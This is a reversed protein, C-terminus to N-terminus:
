RSMVSIQAQLQQIQQQIQLILQERTSAATTTTTTASSSIQNLASETQPGVTGTQKIGRASQFKIVATRTAPGYHSNPTASLFGQALLVKQLQLVDSGDDGYGLYRSFVYSIQNTTTTTQPNQNVAGNVSVYLVACQGGNQCVTINSAGSNLASIVASGGSIVASVANSNSNSGVYYNGTGSINVVTGQGSTLSINNQNFTPQSTVSSGTGNVTVALTACGGGGSSCVDLSSFGSAVGYVSIVNGSLTAQFVSGNGTASIYYPTYGGSVTVSLTQGSLLSISSQSMTMTGGSSSYNVTATLTGCSGTSSCVTITSSGNSNGVLTLTNSSINAQVISPNTNSSVYFVSGSTGYITVITSQGASVTPNTQSFTITSSGTTAATVNLIGCSSLDASCVTISASGSNSTTTLNVTSGSVYAQIISPNSNNSISYSGTGGSITVPVNQQGSAIPVNNQSFSLQSAGASQVTIYISSCNSNNNLVCVTAVTSGQTNAVINITNASISINAITPNSNNSLYLSNSGTNTATVNAAQGVPLVIGAQSLSITSSSATSVVPWFVQNSQSGNAGNTTVYVSTGSAIGYSSSSVSTSFNGASSINGLFNGSLGVGTKVYFFIVSAGSDGTVNITVSNGDSGLSLSLVPTMALANSAFFLFGSSIFFLALSIFIKKRM